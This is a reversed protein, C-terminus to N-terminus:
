FGVLKNAVIAFLLLDIQTSKTTLLKAFLKEWLGM